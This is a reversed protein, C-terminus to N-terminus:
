LVKNLLTHKNTERIIEIQKLSEQKSWDNSSPDILTKASTDLNVTKKKLREVRLRKRAEESAMATNLRTKEEDYTQAISSLKQDYKASAFEIPKSM